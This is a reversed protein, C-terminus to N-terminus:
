ARVSVRRSWNAVAWARVSIASCCSARWHSVKTHSDLLNGVNHQIIHQLSPITPFHPHEFAGPLLPVTLGFLDVDKALGGVRGMRFPGDPDNPFGLVIQGQTLYLPKHLLYLPCLPM